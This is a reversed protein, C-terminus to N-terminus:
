CRTSGGYMNDLVAIVGFVFAQDFGPQVVVCYIEKSAISEVKEM